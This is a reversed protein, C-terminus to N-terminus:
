KKEVKVLDMGCVDCKGMKDYTKGECKMPCEYVEATQTQTEDQKQETSNNSCSIFFSTIFLFGGIFLLSKKM